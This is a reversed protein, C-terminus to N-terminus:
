FRIGLDLSFSRAGQYSGANLPQGFNAGRTYHVGEQPTETYVNFPMETLFVSTDIKSGDGIDSANFLNQLNAEVFFELRGINRLWRFGLDTSLTTDGRVQGLHYYTASPISLYGTSAPDPMGYDAYNQSDISLFIDGPSGSEWRQILMLDMKGGSFDTTWTAFGNFRHRVDTPLYRRPLRNEFNNFEPYQTLATEAGINGFITGGNANGITQSWTYNAHIQWHDTLKYSFQSQVADYSKEYGEDENNILTLDNTGAENGGINTNTHQVYFDSWERHMYDARLFGREGFRLAYGLRFEDARPTKLESPTYGGGPNELGFALDTSPDSRIFWPARERWDPFSTPDEFFGDGYQENIWAVVELPDETIPGGYFMRYLSINGATSADDALAAIREGYVAYGALIEHRGDGFLDYRASLRPSLLDNDATVVGSQDKGEYRDLRLGLNFQWRDNLSWTDNVFLTDARFRSTRSEELVPFFGLQTPPVPRQGPSYMPVVLDGEHRFFSIFYWDNPTETNDVLNRDVTSAIGFDLSHAGWSDTAAFYNGKLRWNDNSSEDDAGGTFPSVNGFTRFGLDTWGTGITRIDTGADVQEQLHPPLPKAFIVRERNGYQFELNLNANIKVDYTLSFRERDVKDDYLAREDLAFFSNNRSFDKRDMYTATIRHNSAPQATFKLQYRSVSRFRDEIQRERPTVEEPEVDFHDLFPPARSLDIINAYSLPTGSNENEQGAFFFWLKDKIIPGGLTASVLDNMDDEFDFNQQLPNRSTWAPNTVQLRLSGALRNGGSKTVTNIVGGSFHGYEASIGSTLVATEQISDEILIFSSFNNQNDDRADAGDVLWTNAGAIAGSLTLGGSGQSTVGPGFAAAFAGYRPFPWLSLFDAELRNIVAESDLQPTGGGRVTLQAQVPADSMVFVPRVVASLSVKVKIKQTTLGDATATLTYMGPPLKLFFFSGNERSVDENSGILASSEARVLVGPLPKGGEDIVLGAIRGTTQSWALPACLIGFLVCLAFKSM